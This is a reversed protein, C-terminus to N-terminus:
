ANDSDFARLREIEVDIVCEGGFCYVKEELNHYLIEIKDLLTKLPIRKM